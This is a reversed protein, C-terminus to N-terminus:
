NQQHEQGFAEVLANMNPPRGLLNTLMELENPHSGGYELIQRRYKTWIDKDYPDNAFLSRLIDQAIATCSRENLKNGMM